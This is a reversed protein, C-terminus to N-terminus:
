IYNRQGLTSLCVEKWLSECEIILMGEQKKSEDDGSVQETACFRTNVVGGIVTSKQRMKEAVLETRMEERKESDADDVNDVAQLKREIEVREKKTLKTTDMSHIFYSHIQRLLDLRYDDRNVQKQEADRRRSFHRRVINCENCENVDCIIQPDTNVMFDFCSEFQEVDDGVSHQHIVHHFDNLLDVGSYQDNFIFDLENLSSVIHRDIDVKSNQYKLLIDKVSQCSSCNVFSYLCEAKPMTEEEEKQPEILSQFQQVDDNQSGLLPQVLMEITKMM